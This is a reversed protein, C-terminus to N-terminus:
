ATQAEGATISLDVADKLTNAVICGRESITVLKEFLEPDDHEATVTMRIATFRSPNGELTGSIVARANHVAAERANIAALLNSMFCGGLAALLLEGGMPGQDHGGKAEPRDILVEHNRIIGKGTTPGVQEVRVEITAM